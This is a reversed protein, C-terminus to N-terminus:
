RYATKIEAWSGSQGAALGPEWMERVRLHGKVDPALRFELGTDTSRHLETGALLRISASVTVEWERELARTSLVRLDAQIESVAPERGQFRPNMLNRIASVEDDYSWVPDTIWPYDIEDIGRSPFFRFGSSQNGPAELLAVYADFDSRDLAQEYSTILAAPDTVNTPIEAADGGAPDDAPLLCGAMSLIVAFALLSRKM